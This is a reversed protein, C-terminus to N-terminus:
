TPRVAQVLWIPEGAGVCRQAPLGTPGNRVTFCVLDDGDALDLVLWATGHLDFKIVEGRQALCAYIPRGNM